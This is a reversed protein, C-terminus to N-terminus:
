HLNGNDSITVITQCKGEEDKTKKKDKKNGFSRWSYTKWDNSFRGFIKWGNSFCKGIMPFGDKGSSSGSRALGPCLKGADGGGVSALHGLAELVVSIGGVDEDGPPVGVGDEVGVGVDVAPKGNGVGNKLRNGEVLDRPLAVTANEM